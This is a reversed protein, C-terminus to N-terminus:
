LPSGKELPSGPSPLQATWPDTRRTSVLVEVTTGQAACDSVLDHAALPLWPWESAFHATDILHPRGRGPGGAAFDVQERLESVVHHRLDSTVYVDAGAARVADLLSGGSGGLVAVREVVADLDGAVRIGQATAPLAEAVTRAFSELRVPAPLVGVRGLGTRAGAPLAALELVDFAPEEYPHAQRMAQVVARRLHRPAVMEVRAEAVTEARGVVGVAPHSGEGPVFTGTGSATWACRSYDGGAGAGATALADTLRHADGEPVFVVHKDLPEPWPVLPVAGVVGLAQALADAVGREAGDANTHAVYLGCGARILRHLLAGKATTVAITHVAELLLPHHTVILDAGWDLAEDVVTAVPDVALLVRRVPQAPDGAVLGVADWGEATRPPYREDLLGVVTRLDPTSTVSAPYGFM